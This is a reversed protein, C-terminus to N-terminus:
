LLFLFVCLIQEGSFFLLYKNKLDDYSKIIYDVPKLVKHPIEYSYYITNVFSIPFVCLM